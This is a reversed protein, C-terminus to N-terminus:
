GHHDNGRELRLVAPDLEGRGPTVPAQAPTTARGGQEIADRKLVRATRDSEPVDVTALGAAAAVAVAALLSFARKMTKGTQVDNMSLADVQM